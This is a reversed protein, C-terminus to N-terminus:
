PSKPGPSTTVTVSSFSVNATTAAIGYAGTIVDDTLAISSETKQTGREAMCVLENTTLTIRRWAVLTPPETSAPVGGVDMAGGIESAVLEDGSVGARLTCVAGAGVGDGDLAIEISGGSASWTVSEIRAAVILGDGQAGRRISIRAPVGEVAHMADADIAFGSGNWADLQAADEFTFLAALKDGSLAPRRDCADGVGDPLAMQARETTDLQAANEAAPCNDCDDVVGDGDEDHDAPDCRPGADIALAGDDGCASVVVLGLLLELGNTGRRM